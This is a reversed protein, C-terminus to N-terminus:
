ETVLYVVQVDGPHVRVAVKGDAIPLDRPQTYEKASKTRPPVQVVIDVYAKRDVRAIGHQTKDIGNNNTLMVLWGDRTKNVQHMVKGAPTQGDATTVTVPLLKETLGNMLYPLSPHAREDQGLMQPVLTVIVAGAGVANRTILPKNNAGATALATAGALEVTEYEFPTAAQAVGSDPAWTEALERKGSLKVGLLEAPLKRAAEVNIVLTGGRSLYDKLLPQWEPTTVDVDGAAWLLPYNFIAKARSPRDVVVDFINGYQGSPMSQVDPAAPQGELTTIPHWFVNFLERLELDYKDERFNDLMKCYNNVREYGHGYSLLVGVPTYPEGRDPLRDVFAQFEQTARGYPSLDIPHKGPGPLIWQNALSQEWYIASAGGLYNLYYMKRYWAISVGDTIAYKSHFWSGAGRNMHQQTFYNCADGFNGSAYNIWGGGYQRAAGREFAIRMPIHVNTADEEYGVVKAGIEHFLHALSISQCSLCPIGKAWHEPPVPTKYVKSWAAAQQSLMQQGFDDILKRRSGTAPPPWHSVGAAGIAEGHIYGLFQEALPGTLAAYTPPGNKETYSGTAYNTMIYFPTKTRELWKRLPTDPSLDPTAGLHFGPLLKPWSMVPIDKQGAFQEHFQKVIDYPPSFEFFVDYLGLKDVDQKDWWKRDPSIGTWMTFERGAVAMRKADAALALDKPSGRWAAGDKPRLGFSSLFNFAPKERGNPVYDLDDTILVADVQRFAEGAKDIILALQAPGQELTGEVVGWGFSFGWYLQYEDNPPVVPTVGLEGAIVAKKGQRVEVKFPETKNRHDYYRVWVKYKGARPVILDRQVSANTEEASAGMSNWESEGGQTWEASIGPGAIGWSGTPASKTGSWYGFSGKVGEFWEPEYWLYVAPKGAALVNGCLSLGLVVAGLFRFSM